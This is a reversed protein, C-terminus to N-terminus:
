PPALWARAVLLREGSEAPLEAIMRAADALTRARGDRAVLAALAAARVEPAADGLASRLEAPRREGRIALARVAVDGHAALEAVAEAARPEERRLLSGVAALRVSPSSSGALRLLRALARKGPVRALGAAQATLVLDSPERPLTPLIRAFRDPDLLASARTAAARVREDRDRLLATVKRYTPAGREVAEAAGAIAQACAARQAADAVALCDTLAAMAAGAGEGRHAAVAGLAAAATIREARPERGSKRLLAILDPVAEPVPVQTMIALASARGGETSSRLRQATTARVDADEGMAFLAAAAAGSNESDQGLEMLATQRLLPLARRDGLQGLAFLAERRVAPDMSGSALRRVAPATSTLHAAVAVGVASMQRAPEDGALAQDVVATCVERLGAVLAAELAGGPGTRTAAAVRRAADGIRGRQLLAPVARELPWEVRRVRATAPGAQRRDRSFRWELHLRDDDSLLEAPPRPLPVAERAV